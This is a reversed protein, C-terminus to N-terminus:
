VKYCNVTIKSDEYFLTDIAEDLISQDEISLEGNPLVNLRDKVKDVFDEMMQSKGSESDKYARVTDTIGQWMYVLIYSPQYNSELINKFDEVTEYGFLKAVTARYDELSIQEGSAVMAAHTEETAKLFDQYTKYM